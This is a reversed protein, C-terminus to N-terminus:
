DTSHYRVVLDSSVPIYSIHLYPQGVPQKIVVWVLRCDHVIVDDLRFMLQPYSAMRTYCFIITLVKLSRATFSLAFIATTQQLITHKDNV